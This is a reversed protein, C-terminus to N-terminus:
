TQRPPPQSPDALGKSLVRRTYIQQHPLLTQAEHQSPLLAPSGQPSWNSLPTIPMVRVATAPVTAEAGMIRRQGQDPPTTLAEHHSPVVAGTFPPFRRRHRRCNFRGHRHSSPRVPGPEAGELFGEARELSDLQLPILLHEADHEFSHAGVAAVVDVGLDICQM